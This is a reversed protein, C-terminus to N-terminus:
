LLLKFGAVRLGVADVEGTGRIGNGKACAMRKSDHCILNNVDERTHAEDKGVSWLNFVVQMHEGLHVEGGVMGGAVHLIGEKYLLTGQAVYGLINQQAAMGTRHLCADHLGCLWWYANDAGSTYVAILGDGGTGMTEEM